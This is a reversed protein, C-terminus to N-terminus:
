RLFNHLYFGSLCVASKYTVAHTYIASLYLLLHKRLQMKTLAVIVAVEEVVLTLLLLRANNYANNNNTANVM